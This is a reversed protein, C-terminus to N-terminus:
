RGAQGPGPPIGGGGRGGTPTTRAGPWRRGSVGAGIGGGRLQRQVGRGKGGILLGGLLRKEGPELGWSIPAGEHEAAVGAGAFGEEGGAQQLVHLAAAEAPGDDSGGVLRHAHQPALELQGAEVGGPIGGGNVPQELVVGGAAAEGTGAGALLSLTATLTAGPANAGGAGGQQSLLTLLM